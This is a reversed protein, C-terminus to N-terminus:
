CSPNTGAAGDPTVTSRLERTLRVLEEEQRRVMRSYRCWVCCGSLLAFIVAVIVLLVAAVGGSVGTYKCQFSPISGSISVDQCVTPITMDAYRVYPVFSTIDYIYSYSATSMYAYCSMDVEAPELADCAAWRDATPFAYGQPFFPHHPFLPPSGGLGSVTMRVLTGYTTADADSTASQFASTDVMGESAWYWTVLAGNVQATWVGCPINRVTQNGVFAPSTTSNMLLLTSGTTAVMDYGIFIRTCTDQDPFLYERVAPDITKEGDPVAFREHFYTMQDWSNAIWEYEYVRGAVGRTPFQLTATSFRMDASFAERVQFFSKKGPSIVLFNATFTDPFSPMTYNYTAPAETTSTTESSSSSSEALVNVTKRKQLAGRARSVQQARSAQRPTSALQSWPDATTSESCYNSPLTKLADSVNSGFFTFTFLCNNITTSTSSASSTVEISVATSDVEMLNVTWMHTSALVIASYTTTTGLGGYTTPITLAFQNTYSSVTIGRATGTTPNSSLPSQLMGVLGQALLVENANLNSGTKHVCGNGDSVVYTDTASSYYTRIYDDNTMREVYFPFLANEGGSSANGNLSFRFANITSIGYVAPASTTSNRCVLEVDLLARGYLPLLNSALAGAPAFLAALVVAIVLLRKVPASGTRTASPTSRGPM